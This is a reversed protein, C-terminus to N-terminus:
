AETRRRLAFVDRVTWRGAQDHRQPLRTDPVSARHEIRMDVAHAGPVDAALVRHHEARPFHGSM